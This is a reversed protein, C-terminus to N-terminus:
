IQVSYIVELVAFDSSELLDAAQEGDNKLGAMMGLVRVEASIYQNYAIQDDYTLEFGSDVSFGNMNDPDIGQCGKEAAVRFRERMLPLLVDTNRIDLWREGEWGDYDNGL